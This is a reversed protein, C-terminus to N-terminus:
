KIIFIYLGICYSAILGFYYFYSSSFQFPDGFNAFLFENIVLHSLPVVMTLGFGGFVVARYHSNEKRHIFEFLSVVFCFLATLVSSSLYIEAV